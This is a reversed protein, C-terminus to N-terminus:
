KSWPEFKFTQLFLNYAFDYAEEKTNFLKGARIYKKDKCIQVCFRTDNTVRYVFRKKGNQSHRVNYSRNCYELNEIRNDSRDKNKHNVELSSLGFFTEAVLRHMSVAKKEKGINMKLKVYGRSNPNPKLIKPSGWKIQFATGNDGFFWNKHIPHRKYTISEDIM